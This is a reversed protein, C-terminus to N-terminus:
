QRAAFNLDIAELGQILDKRLIPKRLTVDGVIRQDSLLENCPTAGTLLLVPMEPCVMRFDMLDDVGAEPDPATDLDFILLNWEEPRAQVSDLMADRDTCHHVERDLGVLETALHRSQALDPAVLAIRSTSRAVGDSPYVRWIDMTRPQSSGAGAAAPRTDMAAAAQPERSATSKHLFPMQM